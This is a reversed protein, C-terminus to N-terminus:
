LRTDPADNETPGALIVKHMASIYKQIGEEAKSSQKTNKTTAPNNRCSTSNGGRGRRNLSIVDLRTETASIVIDLNHCSDTSRPLFHPAQPNSEDFSIKPTRVVSALRILM